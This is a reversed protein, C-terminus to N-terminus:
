VFEIEGGQALVDLIEKETLEVIGGLQSKRKGYKSTTTGFADRTEKGYAFFNYAGKPGAFHIQKKIDDLSVNLGLKEKIRTAEPTLTNTDWYAYAKEQADPNKMFDEKSSVGTLDKIWGKHTTWRFQYKGVAGEGGGASTYADYRGSSEQAAIQDALAGSSVPAAPAASRATAMNEPVMNMDFVPMDANLFPQAPTYNLDPRIFSMDINNRDIEGGTQMSYKQNM